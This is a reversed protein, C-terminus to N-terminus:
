ATVRGNLRATLADYAAAVDLPRDLETRVEAMDADIDGYTEGLSPAPTVILNLRADHRGVPRMTPKRYAKWDRAYSLWTYDARHRGTGAEHLDFPAKSRLRLMTSRAM